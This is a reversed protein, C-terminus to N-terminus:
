NLHDRSEQPESQNALGNLLYSIGRKVGLWALQALHAVHGGQKSDQRDQGPRDRKGAAKCQPTQISECVLRGAEYNECQCASLLLVLSQNLRQDRPDDQHAPQRGLRYGSTALQLNQFS